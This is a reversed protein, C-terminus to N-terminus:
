YKRCFLKRGESPNIPGLKQSVIFALYEGLSMGAKDALKLLKAAQVKNLDLKFEKM